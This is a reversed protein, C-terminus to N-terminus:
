RRRLKNLFSSRHYGGFHVPQDTPLPGFGTYMDSSGGFKASPQGSSNKATERLKARLDAIVKSIDKSLQKISEDSEYRAGPPNSYQSGSFSSETSSPGFQNSSPAQYNQWSNFDDNPAGGRHVRRRAPSRSRSRSRSGRRSKGIRRRNGSRSKSKSRSKNRSRRRRAPSRSRYRTVAM